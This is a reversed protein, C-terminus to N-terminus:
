TGEHWRGGVPIGLRNTAAFTNVSSPYTSSRVTLIVRMEKVFTVTLPVLRRM